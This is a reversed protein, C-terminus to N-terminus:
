WVSVKFGWAYGGINNTYLTIYGGWFLSSIFLSTFTTTLCGFLFSPEYCRQQLDGRHCWVLVSGVGAAERARIDGCTGASWWAPCHHQWLVWIRSSCPFMPIPCSIPDFSIFEMSLVPSKTHRVPTQGWFIQTCRCWGTKPYGGLGASAPQLVVAWSRPAGPLLTKIKILFLHYYKWKSPAEKPFEGQM